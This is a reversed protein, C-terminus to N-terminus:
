ANSGLAAALDATALPCEQGITLDDLCLRQIIQGRRYAADDRCGADTPILIVLSVGTRPEAASVAAAATISAADLRPMGTLVVCHMLPETIPTPEILRAEATLHPTARLMSAAHTSVKGM